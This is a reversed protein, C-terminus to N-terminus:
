ETDNLIKNIKKKRQLHKWYKDDNLSKLIDDYSNYEDCDSCKFFGYKPKLFWHIKNNCEKCYSTFQGM